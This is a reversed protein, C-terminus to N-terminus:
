RPGPGRQPPDKETSSFSDQPVRSPGHSSRGLVQLFKQAQRIRRSFPESRGSRAEAPSRWRGQRQHQRPPDTALAADLGEPDIRGGLGLGPDQGLVQLGEQRANPDGVKRTKCGVGSALAAGRAHHQPLPERGQHPQELAPHLHQDSPGERGALPQRVRGPELLLAQLEVLAGLHRPFQQQLGQHGQTIASRLQSRGGALEAGPAHDHVQPGVVQLLGQAQLSEPVLQLAQAGEIGVGLPTGTLGQFCQHEVRAELTVTAVPLRQQPSHGGARVARWLGLVVEGEAPRAQCGVPVEWALLEEVGEQGLGLPLEAM